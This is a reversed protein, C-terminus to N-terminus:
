VMRRSERGGKTCTKGILSSHEKKRGLFARVHPAEKGSGKGPLTLKPSFTAWAFIGEGPRLTRRIGRLKGGGPLPASAQPVPNRM